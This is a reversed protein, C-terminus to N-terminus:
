HLSSLSWAEGKPTEDALGEALPPQETLAALCYYHNNSGCMKTLSIAILQSSLMVQNRQPM